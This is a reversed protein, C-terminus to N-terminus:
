NAQTGRLAVWLMVHSADPTMSRTIDATGSQTEYTIGRASVDYGGRVRLQSIVGNSTNRIAALKIRWRSTTTIGSRTIAFLLIGTESVSPESIAVTVTQRESYEYTGDNGADIEVDVDLEVSGGLAFKSTDVTVDVSWPVRVEYYNDYAPANALQIYGSTEGVTDLDESSLWDGTRTTLSAGQAQHLKLYPTFGTTTVDEALVVPRQEETASYGAPTSWNASDGDFTLFDGMPLILVLPASDFTKSFAVAVGDRCWGWLLGRVLTEIVGGAEEFRVSPTLYVFNGLSSAVRQIKEGLDYTTDPDGPKAVIAEAQLRMPVDPADDLIIPYVDVPTATRWDSATWTAREYRVRLKRDIDDLPIDTLYGEGVGPDFRYDREITAFDDSSVQWVSEGFPHPTWAVAFGVPGIQKRPRWNGVGTATSRYQTVAAATVDPLTNATGTTETDTAIASAGGYLDVHKMGFVFSTSPALDEWVFRTSGVPLFHTLFDEGDLTPMLPYEAEGVTWTATASTGDIVVAFGTPASLATTTITDVASFASAIRNEKVAYGKVAVVTGSPFNQFTYTGNGLALTSDDPDEAETRDWSSPTAGEGFKLICAAGADLGSITVDVDHEPRTANVVISVSPVSLPQNAAGADLYEFDFGVPGRGRRLAQVVRIGGRGGSGGNAAPNPFSDLDVRFYDAVDVTEAAEMAAFKGIIPGDGYLNFVERAYAIVRGEANEGGGGFDLDILSQGKRASLEQDSIWGEFDVELVKEGLRDITDHAREYPSEVRALGDLKVERTRGGDGFMGYPDVISIGPAYAPLYSTLKARVVTIARSEDHEWTPFESITSADLTDLAAYTAASMQPHVVSALRIGDTASGFPLVFTPHYIKRELWASAKWIRDLSFHVEGFRTDAKLATMAAADYRLGVADHIAEAIAFPHGSVHYPLDESPDADPAYLYVDDYEDGESPVSAMYVWVDVDGNEDGNASNRFGKLPDPNNKTRTLAAITYDSGGAHLRAKRFVGRNATATGIGAYANIDEQLWRVAALSPRAGSIRVRVFNGDIEQVTGSLPPTAAYGRWAILRGQPFIMTTARHGFAAERFDAGWIDAQRELAREDSVYATMSDPGAPENLNTLRDVALTTYGAGDEDVQLEVLRMLLDPRGNAGLNGTLANSTDRVRAQWPRSVTRGKLLDAEPGAVYPVTESDIVLTFDVTADSPTTTGADHIRLRYDRRQSAM